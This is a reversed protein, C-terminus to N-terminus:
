SYSSSKSEVGFNTSEISSYSKFGNVLLTIIFITKLPLKKIPLRKELHEKIPLTFIHSGRQHNNTNIQWHIHPDNQNLVLTLPNLQDIHKSDM